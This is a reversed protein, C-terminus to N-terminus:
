PACNRVPRGYSPRCNSLYALIFSGVVNVFLTGFPLGHGFTAGIASMAGYRGMPGLAGGVAMYLLHSATM